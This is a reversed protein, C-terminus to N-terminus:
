VAQHCKWVQLTLFFSPLKVFFISSSTRGYTLILTSAGIMCSVLSCPSITWWCVFSGLGAVDRDTRADDSWCGDTCREMQAEMMWGDTFGDMWTHILGDIMWGHACRDIQVDIMWGDDTCRDMQVDMMWGKTWRNCGDMQGDLM